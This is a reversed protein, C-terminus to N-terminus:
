DGADDGGLLPEEDSANCPHVGGKGDARISSGSVGASSICAAVM